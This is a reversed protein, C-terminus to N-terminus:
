KKMEPAADPQGGLLPKVLGRVELERVDQVVSCCGLLGVVCASADEPEHIGAVGQVHRRIRYAAIGSCLCAPISFVGQNWLSGATAGVVLCGCCYTSLALLPNAFCGFIPNTYGPTTTFSLAATMNSEPTPANHHSPRPPPLPCPCPLRRLYGLGALNYGVVERQARVEKKLYKRISQLLTRGARTSVLAAHHLTLLSVLLRTTLPTNWGKRAWVEVVELVGVVGLVYFEGGEEVERGRLVGSVLPHRLRKPKDGKKWGQGLTLKVMICLATKRRRMVSSPSTLASTPPRPSVRGHLDELDRDREEDLTFQEDTKEWIRISKDHSATVVISGYKGVGLAWIEGHHGDLKQIQEFKDADWFKVVKDRGATVLYHTGFVFGCGVVAEEHARLSTGDSSIDMALVPLKHGYLSLFFKLTDAHFIKVTADLLSVALLRQDHSHRVCLVDDTLRLTRVHTLSLRKTANEDVLTFEWFKVDKDASGTTLGRKRAVSPLSWIPGEHAKISELLISPYRSPKWPCLLRNLPFRTTPSHPSHMPPYPNVMTKLFRASATLLTLDDSSLSLARIDSRHGQTDITTEQRTLTSPDSSTLTAFHTEIQNNSLGCIIHFPSSDDSPKLFPSFDFSRIKASCRVAGVRPMLDTIALQPEADSDANDDVDMSKSSKKKERQRQKLRAARRRLESESRVKYLEIYRDNGQVGLYKGSAHAIITVIREKHQKELVGRLKVAKRLAPDEDNEDQGDLDMNAKPESLAASPELKSALISADVSWVKVDGEIGGTVLTFLTSATTPTTSDDEGSDSDTDAAKKGKSGKTKSKGSAELPLLELSWAEGRHAVVTEVCHHTKLDWFKLLTDKSTSVLHDCNGRAGLSAQLFRIGTIQDRHGRLRCLGSESLVDWVVIDTDRSGSALREGLSDFALSTVASRHGSFTTALISSSGYTTSTSTTTTTNSFKWIRISGDSYGVAVTDRQAPSKAICTVEANRNDDDHCTAIKDGKRLDWLAVDELSPVVARLALSSSSSSGSASASPLLLCLNSNNSAVIGFANGQPRYRLYLQVM